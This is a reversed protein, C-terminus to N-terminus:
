NRDQAMYICNVGEQKIDKSNIKIKNDWKYEYKQFLRCIM